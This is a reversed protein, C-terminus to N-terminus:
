RWCLDLHAASAPSGAAALTQYGAGELVEVM